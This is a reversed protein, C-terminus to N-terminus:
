YWNVQKESEREYDEVTQADNAQLALLVDEFKKDFNKAILSAMKTRSCQGYELEIGMIAVDLADKDWQLRPFYM